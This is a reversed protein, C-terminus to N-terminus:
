KISVICVLSPQLSPPFFTFINFCCKFLASYGLDSSFSTNVAHINTSRQRDLPSSSTATSVVRWRPEQCAKCVLQLSFTYRGPWLNHLSTLPPAPHHPRQGAAERLQYLAIPISPLPHPPASHCGPQMLRKELPFRSLTHLYLLNLVYPTVVLPILGAFNESQTKTRHDNM